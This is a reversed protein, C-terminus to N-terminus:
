NEGHEWREWRKGFFRLARGINVVLSKVIIPPFLPYIARMKALTEAANGGTGVEVFFTPVNTLLHSHEWRHIMSFTRVNGTGELFNGTGVQPAM